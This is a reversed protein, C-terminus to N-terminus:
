RNRALSDPLRPDPEVFLTKVRDPVVSGPAAGRPKRVYKRLTWDVPVMGSTRAKSHLAALTAAEELDRAPPGGPGPWRLIVHAGATHCAHLWVDNPSSHRFTLDDNHRAGRGVRIELGGSSTFTRYPLSPETPGGDGASLTSPLADRVEEAEVTGARASALLEALRVRAARADGILDPLRAAAREAKAARRYYGSANRHPPEAPDLDVTVERGEFDVLLAETSGAPIEAYRALILDGVSRLEAPDEVCALEAELRTVRRAAQDVGRELRTVLDRGLASVVPADGSAIDHTACAEFAALLNEAPRHPTGALPFPYPQLGGEVELTVPRRTAGEDAMQVWREYGVALGSEGRPRGPSGLLAAANLPSTWAFTRVLTRPREEPPLSELLAVWDEKPLDGRVGSRSAPPPPVYEQGVLQRRSGERRWLVHRIVGAQGETVLANWQNGMLEVVLTLGSRGGRTPSLEFRIIREDPPAEVRQIRCRLRLDGDQPQLPGYLRLYGRRPHLHWLLTRDRFLLAMDRSSGDLRLARLQAGALSQSLELATHRVLLADWRISM